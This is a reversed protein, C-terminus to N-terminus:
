KIPVMQWLHDATGNDTWQLAVAGPSTSADRIGLLLGSNKNVLMSYGGGADVVKWLHDAAHIDRWQLATAGPSTSANLIGLLLGSNRSVIKFYGDEAPELQWQHNTSGDSAQQEVAAGAATSAGSIGLELGSNKNVIRVPSMQPYWSELETVGVYKGPQPTFVIRIQSTMVAPFTVENPENAAPAAPTRVQGPVSTWTSGSLCQVDFSQPVRVSQGDDYIYVKVETIPREYGFDVGLSDTANPSGANTWRNDPMADYRIFGDIAKLASDYADACRPGDASRCRMGNSATNTYSAFAMPYTATYTRNDWGRFWDKDATWANAAVNELRTTAAPSVPAGVTVTANDLTASQYIRTGDQFVQLGSGANYHTGDDDWVITLLHGHYPLDQVAFYSWTDPVLPKLELSDSARPKIGLLGTLVLDVFSSHNYHESFDSADYVWEGTDGNAAEAVYPTGSRHQLTAFQSLLAYYDQKTVYSQAPYDQLLNALGTLMMSTAFPWSPGNWHCCSTDDHNQTAPFAQYNFYPNASIRDLEAAGTGLSFMLTNAGALMPVQVTVRQSDSFTGWGSTAPYTVTIPSASDGNVVLNHTSTAGTANAYFVDVPYTGAGPAHVTFTVSSDASDIQGVYQGNLATSSPHVNAHVIEAQEAEFDHVRELTTPGHAAAFRRPGTLYQWAASYNSDPLEFAWPAYGMAERWTTRTWEIGRNTPDANYVQMFFQRQPDWLANQVAAKLSAAKSAFTSATASDGALTAVESIARAAAYLYSNITPRYGSGGGFWDTSHMSTETYETADSLPSQFYLSHSTPTGNVTINATYNWNWSDYLAILQPLNVELQTPDGTVLYRRYAASTIWESFGRATETGSGRLWYDIYDDMYTRNRLWRGNLIHYGAADSLGSYSANGSYWIPQDYETAIYGTGPTTYRLARKHTSWRYYYVENITTDPTDV